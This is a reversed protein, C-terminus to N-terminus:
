RENVVRSEHGCKGRNINTGVGDAQLDSLNDASAQVGQVFVALDRAEALAYESVAREIRLRHCEGDAHQLAKVTSNLIMSGISDTNDGGSGQAIGAVTTGKELPYAGGRSPLGLDDGAEFFAAEDM